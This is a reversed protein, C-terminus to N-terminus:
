VGRRRGHRHPFEKRDSHMPFNISSINECDSILETMKKIPNSLIPSHEIFFNLESEVNVQTDSELYKTVKKFKKLIKTKAKFNLEIYGKMLNIEKYLEKLAEELNDNYVKYQKNQKIYELQEIIKNLRSIYYKLNQLM